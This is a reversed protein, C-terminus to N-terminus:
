FYFLCDPLCMPYDVKTIITYKNDSGMVIKAKLQAQMVQNTGYCNNNRTMSVSVSDKNHLRGKWTTTWPSTSSSDLLTEIMTLSSDTSVSWKQTVTIPDGSYYCSNPNMDDVRIIGTWTGSFPAIGIGPSPPNNNNSQNGAQGDEKKCSTIVVSFSLWIVVMILSLSKKM